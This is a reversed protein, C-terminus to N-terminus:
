STNDAGFYQALATFAQNIKVPNISLITTDKKKRKSLPYKQNTDFEIQHLYSNNNIQLHKDEAQKRTEPDNINLLIVKAQLQNILSEALALIDSVFTKDVNEMNISVSTDLTRVPKQVVEQNIKRLEPRELLLSVVDELPIIDNELYLNQYISKLFRYDAPTDLWLRHKFQKLQEPVTIKKIKFKEPNEMVYLAAHELHGPDNSLKNIKQFVKLRLVAVGGEISGDEPSCFDLSHDTELESIM